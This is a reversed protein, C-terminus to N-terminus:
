KGTVLVDFNVGDDLFEDISFDEFLLTDGGIVLLPGTGFNARSVAFHVSGIAGLRNENSTSGDNLLIV